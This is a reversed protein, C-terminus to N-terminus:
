PKTLQEAEANSLRYLTFGVGSVVDGDADVYVNVCREMCDKGFIRLSSYSKRNTSTRGKFDIGKLRSNWTGRETTVVGDESFNWLRYSKDSPEYAILTRWSSTPHGKMDVFTEIELYKKNLIWQCTQRIYSADKEDEGIGWSGVLGALLDNGALTEELPSAAAPPTSSCTVVALWVCCTALTPRPM